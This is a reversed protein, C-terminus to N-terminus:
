KASISLPTVLVRAMLVFVFAQLWSWTYHGPFLYPGVVMVLITGLAMSAVWLVIVLLCSGLLVTGVTTNHTNM